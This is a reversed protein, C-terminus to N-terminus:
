KRLKALTKELDAPLAATIELWEKTRPHTFGLTKAHLFLRDVPLAAGKKHGYLRDGAVPCGLAKFHARIQHTRGTETTVTLLSADDFYEDVRYHTVARRDGELPEPRAAMRRERSSRGIAMDITGSDEPPRGHVLVAYEKKIDHRKFQKKLSAYAKRNKAVVLLGSADRDLRHMIGPREPGEGVGAIEPCHALLANALTDQEDLVAPHVLMGSPKNVVLVDDDEHIIDLKIDPRPMLEAPVSPAAVADAVTVTDGERLATHPKPLDDNLIVAGDKVAKQIASRSIGSLTEALFVDLRKGANERDIIYKTAMGVCYQNDTLRALGFSFAPCTDTDRM